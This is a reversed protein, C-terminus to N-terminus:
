VGLRPSHNKKDLSKEEIDTTKRGAPVLPHFGISSKLREIINDFKNKFAELYSPFCFSERPM